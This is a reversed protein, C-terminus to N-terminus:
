FRGQVFILSNAEELSFEYLNLWAERMKGLSELIKKTEEQVKCDCCKPEM